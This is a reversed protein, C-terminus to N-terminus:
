KIFLYILTYILTNKNFNLFVKGVGPVSTIIQYIEKIELNEEIMEEIEKELAKIQSKLLERLVQNQQIIKQALKQNTLLTMEKDKVSLQKEQKVKFARESLLVQLNQLKEDGRYEELEQYNKKIFIAIRQADVKDTKGRVLGLSKHLHLPNILYFQFPFAALIELLLWGYKDTNELCIHNEETTSLSKSFFDEISKRENDIHYYKKEKGKLICIDLSLKSIDIGMFVQKRQM